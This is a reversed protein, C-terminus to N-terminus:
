QSELTAGSGLRKMLVEGTNTFFLIKRGVKGGLHEAAVKLGATQLVSKAMEINQRGVTVPKGQVRKSEFMDSGGFIKIEIEQRKIGKQEFAEIMAKVSCDLYRFM